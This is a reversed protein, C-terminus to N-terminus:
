LIHEMLSYGLCLCFFSNCLSFQTTNTYRTRRGMELWIGTVVMHENYSKIKLRWNSETTKEREWEKSDFMQM